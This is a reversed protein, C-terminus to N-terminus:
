HSFPVSRLPNLYKFFNNAAIWFCSTNRLAGPMHHRPWSMSKPGKTKQAKDEQLARAVCGGRSALGGEGPLLVWVRDVMSHTIWFASDSNLCCLCPGLKWLAVLTGQGCILAHTFSVTLFLCVFFFSGKRGLLHCGLIGVLTCTGAIKGEECVCKM